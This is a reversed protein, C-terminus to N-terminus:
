QTPKTFVREYIAHSLGIGRKEYKSKFQRPIIPEAVLQWGMRQYYDSVQEEYDAWDTVFYFVGHEHLVHALLSTFTTQTALRRKHHRKKPWPDPFFLHVADISQAPLRALVQMADARLIKLNELGLEKAESLIHGIGPPYVDIGILQDSPHAQARSLLDDGMGFGIEILKRGPKTFFQDMHELDISFMPDALLELGQRQRPSLRGNRRAFSEIYDKISM